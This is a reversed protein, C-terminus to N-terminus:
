SGYEGIEDLWGDFFNVMLDHREEAISRGTKTFMRDKLHRLKYLM